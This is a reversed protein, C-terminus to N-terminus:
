QRLGVRQDVRQDVRGVAISQSRLRSLSVDISCRDAQSAPLLFCTTRLHLLAGSWQGDESAGSRLAPFPACLSLARYTPCTPGFVSRSAALTLVSRKALTEVLLKDFVFTFVRSFFSM